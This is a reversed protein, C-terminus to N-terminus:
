QSYVFFSGIEDSFGRLTGDVKMLPDSVAPSDQEGM